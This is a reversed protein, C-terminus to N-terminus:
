ATRFAGARLIGFLDGLKSEDLTRDTTNEANRLMAEARDDVSKKIFVEVDIDRLGFFLMPDDDFMDGIGYLVAAVHKCM